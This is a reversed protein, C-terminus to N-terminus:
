SIWHQGADSSHFLAGNAGGVWIDLGNAALVRWRGQPAVAVSEWTIGGDLSRQLTGDSTLTWRPSVRARSGALESAPMADTGATAGLADKASTSETEKGRGPMAEDSSSGASVVAPLGRVMETPKSQMKTENATSAVDVRQGASTSTAMTGAGPKKQQPAAAENSHSPVTTGVTASHEIASPAPSAPALKRDLSSTEVPEVRAVEATKPHSQYNLNLAAGIVVICAAAAAWRLVRWSLWQTGTRSKTAPDSLEPMSLSVIERCEYCRALHDIFATREQKSLSKEHFAAILAADPHTESPPGQQLRRLAINAMQPM